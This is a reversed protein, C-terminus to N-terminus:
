STRVGCRRKSVKLAIYEVNDIGLVLSCPGNVCDLIMYSDCFVSLFTAVGFLRRM